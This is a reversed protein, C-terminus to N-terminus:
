QTSCNGNNDCARISFIEKGTFAIGQYSITLVGNSITGIAGSSPQVTLQILNVNLTGSTTILPKLDITVIGGVTTSLPATNIVPPQACPGTITAIVLTRASECTGNNISVYYTTTATLSPTTFSSSTQGTIATGGTAVTYWRYQGSTGGSASLTIVSISCGSAGTTTPASPINNVIAAVAVRNSECTAPDFISVYYTTIATLSPTSFSAGTFLLAPTVADAYWRYVQSGGAGSATLTVAGVGCRSAPTATPVAPPTCAIITFPASVVPNSWYGKSDKARVNLTYNGPTLAPLNLNFLQNVTPAQTVPVSTALGIGPDTNVYYELKVLDAPLTSTPM